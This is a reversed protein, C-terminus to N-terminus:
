PGDGDRKSRVWDLQRAWLFRVYLPIKLLPYIVALALDGLSIIHRGYRAWSFLVSLALLAGALSALGLPFLAHTLLYFLGSACWLAAVLLTLLALPPVSLDLALAMLGANPPVLSNLFLRPTESLIVSLHGHEWRTRQGQVGDVSTPFNSTVLAEPCFLPPTGSRALDIGLKLDEVIHGTALSATMICSWPFAMGTGMLQCPLGLRRLAEPRVHNKVAWAFEAIRMRLGTDKGAHMLYLAQIPRGAHACLRALRDISGTAVLCDADVVIVIDPADLELHRVGFDLAYGKGRRTSDSRVIVEAGEVAAIAATEDSCNDAVVILRDSEGLQPVISRLTGAIISAEDHAPMVIALRRREGEQAKEVGRPTVALLVQAFLVATPLLVLLTAGVLLIELLTVLDKCGDLSSSLPFGPLSATIPYM